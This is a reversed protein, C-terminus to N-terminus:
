KSNQFIVILATIASVVSAISSVLALIWNRQAIKLALAQQIREILIVEEHKGTYADVTRVTSVGLDQAMKLLETVRQDRDKMQIIKKLKNM